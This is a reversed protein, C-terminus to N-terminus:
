AAREELQAIVEDAWAIMARSGALGSRLTLLPLYDSPASAVCEREIELLRDLQAQWRRRRARVLALVTEGDMHAGFFLKSREIGLAATTQV